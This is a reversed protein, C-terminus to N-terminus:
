VVVGRVPTLMTRVNTTKQTPKLMTNNLLIGWDNNNPDQNSKSSYPTLNTRKLQRNECCTQFISITIIRKKHFTILTFLIIILILLSTPIAIGLSYNIRSILIYEGNSGQSSANNSVGPSPSITIILPSTSPSMLPSTSPSVVPSTSPSVVPSTSPSVLPSSSPLPASNTCIVQLCGQSNNTCGLVIVAEEEPTGTCQTGSYRNRIIQKKSDCTYTESYGGPVLCSTLAWESISSPNTKKNLIDLCTQKFSYKTDRYATTVYSLSSPVFAGIECSTLTSQNPSTAYVKCGFEVSVSKTTIPNGTCSNNTYSSIIMSSTNLCSYLLFTGDNSRLCDGFGLDGTSASRTYYQSSCNSNSFSLVSIYDAFSTNFSWFFIVLSHLKM